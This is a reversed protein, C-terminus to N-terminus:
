EPGTHVITVPHPNAPDTELGERAADAIQDITVVHSDFAVTITGVLDVTAPRRSRAVTPTPRSTRIM